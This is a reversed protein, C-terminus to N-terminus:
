DATACCGDRGSLPRPWAACSSDRDTLTVVPSPRRVSARAFGHIMAMAAQQLSAAAGRRVQRDSKRSKCRCLAGDAEPQARDGPGRGTQVASTRPRFPWAAM